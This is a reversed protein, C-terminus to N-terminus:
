EDAADSTYLLCGKLEAEGMADAAGISFDQPLEFRDFIRFAVPRGFAPDFLMIVMRDGSEIRDMLEPIVDVTGRINLSPDTRRLALM